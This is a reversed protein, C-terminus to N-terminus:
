LCSGYWRILYFDFGWIAIMNTYSEKSGDAMVEGAGEGVRVCQMANCLGAKPQMARCRGDRVVSCQVTAQKTRVSM